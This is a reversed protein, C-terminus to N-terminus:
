EAQGLATSYFNQYRTELEGKEAFPKFIEIAKANYDVQSSDKLYGLYTYTSATLMKIEKDDPWLQRADLAIDLAKLYYTKAHNIEERGYAISGAWNTLSIRSKAFEIDNGKEAELESFIAIAKGLYIDLSTDPEVEHAYKEAVSLASLYLSGRKNDDPKQSLFGGIEDLMDDAIIVAQTKDGHEKEFNAQGWKATMWQGWVQLSDKDKRRIRNILDMQKKQTDRAAGLNGEKMHVSILSNYGDVLKVGSFPAGLEFIRRRLTYIEKSTKIEAAEDKLLRGEINVRTSLLDVKRSLLKYEEPIAAILTDLHYIAGNLHDLAKEGDEEGYYQWAVVHHGHMAAWQPTEDINDESFNSPVTKPVDWDELEKVLAAITATTQKKNAASAYIRMLTSLALVKDEENRSLTFYAQATREADAFDGLNLQMLSLLSMAFLNDPDLSIAKRAAKRAREPELSSSYQGLQEWDRSTKASAELIDLGDSYTKRDTMLVLARRKDPDDSTALETIQSSSLQLASTSSDDIEARIALADGALARALEKADAVSLKGNQVMQLLQQQSQASVSIEVNQVANIGKVFQFLGLVGGLTALVVLGGWVYRGTKKANDTLTATDINPMTLSKRAAEPHTDTGDSENPKKSM